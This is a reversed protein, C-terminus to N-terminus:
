VLSDKKLISIYIYKVYIYTYILSLIRRQFYLWLVLIVGLIM